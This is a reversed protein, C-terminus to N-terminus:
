SFLDLDYAVNDKQSAKSCLALFAVIVVKVCPQEEIWNLRPKYRLYCLRDKGEQIFDM